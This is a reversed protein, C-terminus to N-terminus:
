ECADAPGESREPHRRPVVRELVVDQELRSRL